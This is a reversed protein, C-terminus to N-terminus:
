PPVVLSSCLGLAIVEWALCSGVESSAFGTFSLVVCERMDAALM